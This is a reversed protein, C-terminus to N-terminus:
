PRDESRALLAGWCAGIYGGGSVTSLYDVFRLYDKEALAQLVGLCVSASRVGGGSLALGILAQARSSLAVARSHGNKSDAVRAISGRVDSRKLALIEGQWMATELAWLVVPGLVANGCADCGKLLRVEEKPGEL